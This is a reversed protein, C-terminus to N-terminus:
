VYRKINIDKLICFISFTLRNSALLWGKVKTMFSNEPDSIYLKKYPKIYQQIERVRMKETKLDIVQCYENVLDFLRYVLSYRMEHNNTDLLYKEIYNLIWFLSEYNITSHMISSKRQIYHYTAHSTIAVKSFESFLQMSVALDEHLKGVPFPNNKIAEIKFLKSCATVGIGYRARMIMSKASDTNLLDSDFTCIPKHRGSEFEYILPTCAIDANYQNRLNVLSSVYDKDVYDDSDVFIVYESEASAVGVNRADSLGGNKKHIVKIRSDNKAFKDCIIPCNDPSGDDVLIIEINKYDQQQVSEVCRVLYKEVNYIPIVIAIRPNDM